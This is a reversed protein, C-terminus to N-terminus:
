PAPEKCEMDKFWTMKIDFSGDLINDFVGRYPKGYVDHHLTGPGTQGHAVVNKPGAAQYTETWALRVVGDGLAYSVMDTSVDVRNDDIFQAEFWSASGPWSFSANLMTVGNNDDIALDVEALLVPIDLAEALAEGLHPENVFIKQIVVRFDDGDQRCSAPVIVNSHMEYAFGIPGRELEGISARECTVAVYGIYSSGVGQSRWAEPAADRYAIAPTPM